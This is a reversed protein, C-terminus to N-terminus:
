PQGAAPRAADLLRLLAVPDIIALGPCLARFDGDDMLELLDKDRSVLYDAGADIALNVYPEDKPDRALVFPGAVDARAEALSEVDELFLRVAEPTLGPFKRITKPRTLVDRVEALIAPSVVLGLRGGRVAELCAAAPGATMRGAAQLFLMCDFVARPAM